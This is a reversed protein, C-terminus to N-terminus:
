DVVTQRLVALIICIYSREYILMNVDVYNKYLSRFTVSVSFFRTGSM